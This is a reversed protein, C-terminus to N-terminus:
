PYSRDLDMEKKRRKNEELQKELKAIQELKEPDSAELEARAQIQPDIGEPNKPLASALATM